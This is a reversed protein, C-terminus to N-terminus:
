FTYPFLSCVIDEHEVNLLRLSLMFQKLHEEPLVDNDPNFKPILKEPHKSLLHQAGPIVIADVVLWPQNAEMKGRFNFNLQPYPIYALPPNTKPPDLPKSGRAQTESFDFFVFDGEAFYM